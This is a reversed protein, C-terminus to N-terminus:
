HPPTSVVGLTTAHLPGNIYSACEAWVVVVLNKKKKKKKKKKKM